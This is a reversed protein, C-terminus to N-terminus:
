YHGDFFGGGCVAFVVISVLPLLARLSIRM